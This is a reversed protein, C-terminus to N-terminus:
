VSLHERRLRVGAAALSSAPDHAQILGGSRAREWRCTSHHPAAPRSTPESGPERCLRSGTVRGPTHPVCAWACWYRHHSNVSSLPPNTDRVQSVTFYHTTQHGTPERSLYTLSLQLSVTGSLTPIIYHSHSLNSKPHRTRAQHSVNVESVDMSVFVPGAKLRLQRPSYQTLAPAAPVVSLKGSGTGRGEPARIVARLSETLQWLVQSAKSM